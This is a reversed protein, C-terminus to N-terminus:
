CLYSAGLGGADAIMGLREQALEKLVTGVADVGCGAAGAGGEVEDAVVGFATGFKDIAVDDHIDAHLKAGDLAAHLDDGTVRLPLV